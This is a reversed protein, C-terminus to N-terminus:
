RWTMFNGVGISNAFRNSAEITEYKSGDFRRGRQENLWVLKEQVGTTVPTGSLGMANFPWLGRSVTEVTARKIKVGTGFYSELNYPSVKEVTMPDNIDRFRVLIPLRDLPVEAILRNSDYFDFETWHGTSAPSPKILERVLYEPESLATEGKLLAFLIGKKGLDVVVAEGRVSMNVGGSQPLWHAKPQVNVQIVSSGTHVVGNDEIELTLRYRFSKANWNEYVVGSGFWVVLALIPLLVAVLVLRFFFWM